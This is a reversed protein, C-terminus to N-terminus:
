SGALGDGFIESEYGVLGTCDTEPRNQKIITLNTKLEVM